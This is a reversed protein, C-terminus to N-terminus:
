PRPPNCLGEYAFLLAGFMLPLTFLIGIFLGLFGFLTLFYGLVLVFFVRFWQRTVVRRSVEMATWPSLGKDIVLIFAFCWAVSIYVVPIIGFALGIWIANEPPPLTEPPHGRLAGSTILKFIYGFLPWFFPLMVAFSLVLKLLTTLMLPVLPESFGAFVASVDRPEGRIKGLYYYYLGAYFVGNLFVGAFLGLIPIMGAAFQIALSLLTIGVLPFFNALWLHWSRSLCEFVDLPVARAILDDAIVRPDNSVPTAPVPDPATAGAAPEIPPPLGAAGPPAFEAFDALTKWETDNDRRAKTQLNARGGAIWEQVRHVPVPGYEKGDTGLITFM